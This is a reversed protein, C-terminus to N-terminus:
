TNVLNNMLMGKAGGEDFAQSMKHFMPDANNYDSELKLVNLLAKNSEITSTIGNKISISKSGVRAPGKNETDEDDNNANRSLNELIRYSSTWTDDVRHSYIKVSADLTCSAKQFNVGRQGREAAEEKILQGMHDILNLDWSNKANIKNESSMKIIVKYMEALRAQDPGSKHPSRSGLMIGGFSSRRRNGSLSRPVSTYEVNLNYDEEINIVATVGQNLKRMGNNLSTDAM